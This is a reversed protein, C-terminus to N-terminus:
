YTMKKLRIRYRSYRKSYEMVDLGAADIIQDLEESQKLRIEM